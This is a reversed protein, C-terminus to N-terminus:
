NISLSSRSVLLSLNDSGTTFENMFCADATIPSCTEAKPLFSFDSNCIPIEAAEDLSHLHFYWIPLKVDYRSLDCTHSYGRLSCGTERALARNLEVQKKALSM